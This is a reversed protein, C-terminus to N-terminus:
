RKLEVTLEAIRKILHEEKQLVDKMTALRAWKERTAEGLEITLKALVLKKEIVEYPEKNWNNM